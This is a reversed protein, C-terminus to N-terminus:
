RWRRKPFNVMLLKESSPIIDVLSIFIMVGASFGLGVSLTKLNDKNTMFAVAGGIATTLGALMTLCFAIAFNNHLNMLKQKRQTLVLVFFFKEYSLTFNCRRCGLISASAM